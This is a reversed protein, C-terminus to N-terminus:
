KILSLLQKRFAPSAYNALGEKKWVLRGEANLLLTTPLTGSFAAPDVKGSLAMNPINIHEQQLFKGSRQWDGDVEVLRITIRPDSKLSDYLKQLSPMEARCPPCWPAWFNVLVWRQQEDPIQFSNGAADVLNFPTLQQGSKVEEGELQPSFLGVDFFRRLLWPRADPHLLLVLFAAVFILNWAQKKLLNIIASTPM